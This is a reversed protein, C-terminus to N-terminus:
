FGPRLPGLLAPSPGERPELGADRLMRLCEAVTRGRGRATDIAEDRPNVGAEATIRNAGAHLFLISPEHAGIVMINSWSLAALTAVAQIKAQETETIEGLHELRTGPVAIRRMTAMSTPTFDEGQWIGEVLEDSSHEPGIPELCYSLDLGAERAAVITVRRQEPSLPTDMGERLRVTHYVATYGAEVLAQAEEPGFDAINAVLPYGPPLSRRAARGVELFREFPYDATAMFGVANAGQGVFTTARRVAEETSMPTSETVRGFACFACEVQCHEHDLGVQAFVEGVRGFRTRNLRNAAAMVLGLELSDPAITELLFTAEGRSLRGGSLVGAVIDTVREQPRVQMM